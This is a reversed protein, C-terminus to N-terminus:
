RTKHASYAKGCISRSPHQGLPGRKRHQVLTPVLISAIFHQRDSHHSRWSCDRRLSLDPANINEKPGRCEYPVVYIEGSRNAGRQSRRRASWTCLKPSIGQLPRADAMPGVKGRASIALATSGLQTRCACSLRNP